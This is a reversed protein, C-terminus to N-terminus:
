SGSAGPPPASASGPPHSTPAAESSAAGTAAAACLARRAAAPGRALAGAASYFRPLDGGAETLLRRFGPICGQYSSVAALHANNLGANIWAEYGSAVGAARAYEQLERAAQELRNHKRARMQEPRLDAAYLRALDARAAGFIAATEGQRRRQALIGSLETTRKQGALWRALGEQEVTMAFAENFETDGPVYLLQHALEHFLTAVLATEGQRLMSSLVPDNFHGLTSYAAM